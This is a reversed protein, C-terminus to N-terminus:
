KDIIKSLSELPCHTSDIFMILHYVSPIRKGIVIDHYGREDTDFVDCMFAISLGLKKRIMEIEQGLRMTFVGYLGFLCFGGSFEPPQLKLM